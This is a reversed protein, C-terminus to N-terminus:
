QRSLFNSLILPINELSVFTAAFNIGRALPISSESVKGAYRNESIM